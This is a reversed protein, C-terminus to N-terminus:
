GKECKESIAIREASQAISDGPVFDASYGSSVMVELLPETDVRNKGQPSWPPRCSRQSQPQNSSKRQLLTKDVKTLHV